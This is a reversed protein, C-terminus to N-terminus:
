KKNKLEGQKKQLGIECEELNKKFSAINQQRSWLEKKDAFWMDYMAAVHFFVKNRQDRANKEWQQSLDNILFKIDNEEYSANVNPTFHNIRSYLSDITRLQKHQLLQFDKLREMKKIVIFKKSFLQRKDNNSFLVYGGIGTIVLFALLLYVFAITREKVSITKQTHTTAEKKAVETSANINAKNNDM